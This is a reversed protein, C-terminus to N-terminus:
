EECINIYKLRLFNDEGSIHMAGIMFEDYYYADPLFVNDVNIWTHGDRKGHLPVSAIVQFIRSGSDKVHLNLVDSSSRIQFCMRIRYRKELSLMKSLPIVAYNGPKWQGAKVFLVTHGNVLHEEWVNANFSFHLHSVDYMLPMNGETYMKLNKGHNPKLAYNVAEKFPMTRIVEYFLDRKPSCYNHSDNLVYGNSGLWNLPVKKKFGIEIEPIQEFFQKGKENNCLVVSVGKSVNLDKIHNSIGWFDGITIDGFRPLSQYKCTECHPPCMTHNHYVRQYSDQKEGRRVIKTGDSETVTVTLCDAKRGQEKHRFGYKKIGEPFEDKVYKQFFKASPANSCLLDIIVLNEYDDGLYARLGAAQCPCGSFLVFSGKDLQAKIKYFINGMYSQLYKSKQLQSLDAKKSIMVHEVSFDERWKAGVVQGNRLFAEGALLPFIGGSSSQELVKPDSAIFAYCEPNEMNMKLAPLKLAPCVMSCKGCNVCVDYALRSRYFGHEDPELSLADCPCSSVCAGCGTCMCEELLETVAHEKRMKKREIQQKLWLYSDDRWRKLVDEIYEYDVSTQLLQDKNLIEKSDFVIKSEVSLLKGLSLFRSDGRIKNAIAIFKKRFIIAFAMGHCSDTIVFEAHSIYYLWDEVQINEVCNELNMKKKNEPYRESIGDLMNIIKIGGLKKSVHVIAERKDPTPDLIYSVMFPKNEKKDSKHILEEYIGVDVLFVPDLVQKADVGFVERCLRVGDEERVSIGDFEKLLKATRKREGIPTFDTDHGFSAAYAIKRKGEEVFDLYFAKGFFKNIGYNWVQDSGVVFIDCLENLRPLEEQRYLPGINYHEEAFRRAHTHSLEVDGDKVFPKELMIVSKNMSTLVQYLAYYTLISGYNCGYWVGVIGIDYKGNQSRDEGM